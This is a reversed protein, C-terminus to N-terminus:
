KGQLVKLMKVAHAKKDKYDEIMNTRVAEPVKRVCVVNGIPWEFDDFISDWYYKKDKSSLKEEFYRYKETHGQHGPGHNASFRYWPM